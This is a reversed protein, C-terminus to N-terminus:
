FHVRTGAQLLTEPVVPISTSYGKLLLLQYSVFPSFYTSSSYGNYGASIGVPITFMGKGKQAASVWQGNEQHYSEVPRFNYKYGIGAKLEAFFNDVISPRWVTQTSLLWGNGTYKNQIWGINLQQVWNQYSNLSVETGIGFGVNAFNSKLDKFPLSLSHFQISVILPFNRYDKENKTQALTLLHVLCILIIILITKKM